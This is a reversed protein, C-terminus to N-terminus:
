KAIPVMVLFQRGNPLLDFQRRYEAQAFGNIPLPIPAVRATLDQVNVPLRFMQRDRDFYIAKGDPLWMPHSGGDHTLQHRVGTPPFPEVWVEYRGTENSAYAMWRGDPSMASSHQASGPLDVLKTVARTKMDFLSIGYDRNGTLTLFRLHTGGGTWGEGSRTDILHEADGTGDARRWYVADGKDGSVIFVIRQGDPTWMPAWNVPGVVQPLPQRGAPNTLEATWLQSGDPPPNRTEFAIRRGDPSIRPAYVSAPLQGLVQKVGDVDFLTLEYGAPAQGRLASGFCLVVVVAMVRNRLITM